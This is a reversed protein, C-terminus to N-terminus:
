EDKIGFVFEKDAMDSSKLQALVAFGNESKRKISDDYSNDYGYKPDSRDLVGVWTKFSGIYPNTFGLILYKGTGVIEWSMGGTVGTFWSGQRNAVTAITTEGPAVELKPQSYWTGSSFYEKSFRLPYKSGNAIALELSRARNKLEKAGHLTNFVNVAEERLKIGLEGAAIATDLVSLASARKKVEAEKKAEKLAEDHQSTWALGVVSCLLLITSLKM